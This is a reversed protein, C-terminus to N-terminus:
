ERNRQPKCCSFIGRSLVSEESSISESESELVPVTQDKPQLSCCGGSSFCCYVIMCTPRCCSTHLSQLVTVSHQLTRTKGSIAYVYSSDKMMFMCPSCSSRSDTQHSSLHYQRSNVVSYLPVGTGVSSSASQSSM